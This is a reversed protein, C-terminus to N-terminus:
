KGSGYDPSNEAALHQARDQQNLITVLDAILHAVDPNVQAHARLSDIDRDLDADTSGTARLIIRTKPHSYRLRARDIEDRLHEILLSVGRAAKGPWPYATIAALTDPHPRRGANM